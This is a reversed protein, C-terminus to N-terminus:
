PRESLRADASVAGATIKGYVERWGERFKSLSLLEYAEAAATDAIRKALDADERMALVKAALLRAKPQGVMLATHRDELIEALTPTVVSVIPLAAAMAAIVPLTSAAPNGPACPTRRGGTATVLVADAASALSEFEARRGLTADANCVMRPQGLKAGLAMAAAARPGRGLMLIRYRADLCALISGTWVALYHDAADTSEGPVLLVYDDPRIGLAARLAPDRQRRVRSFDVGPRVLHLRDIPVGREAYYRRATAAPCVIHIERYSMAARLWRASRPTPSSQPSFVIKAAGGAVAATLALDDWCQVLDAQQALRRLGWVAAPLHLWTGGPGIRAVSAATGVSGGGSLAEIARETQVDPPRGVLHLVRIPRSRDSM